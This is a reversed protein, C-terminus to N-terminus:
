RGSRTRTRTGVAGAAALTAGLFPLVTVAALLLAERLMHPNERRHRQRAQANWITGAPAPLHPTRRLDALAYGIVPLCNVAVGAAIAGPLIRHHTLYYIAFAGTTM